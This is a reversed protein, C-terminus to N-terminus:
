YLKTSIFENFRPLSFSLLGKGPSVVVGKKLLRERYKSFYEKKMNLESLLHSVPVSDNTKFARLIKQEVESLSTWVKRYSYEELYQDFQSLIGATIEKKKADFLLYGLLQFAFAYGKTMKAFELAKEYDVDLIERYSETVASINLASLTIRPCRILFTLNKENEIASINEFVSTMVVFLDYDKRILMQSTLAFQKLYTNNTAEDILVIVKKNQRKLEELMKDLLDDINLIPNKGTISFTVGSFSFAFNKEMFLRKIRCQSYLKAALSERLDDEPNLEIVIYDGQNDFYNYISTLMVTKGSGRIGSIVYFNSLPPYATISSILNQKESIRAIYEIPKKGFSLTFPNSEYEKM